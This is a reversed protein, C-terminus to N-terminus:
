SLKYVWTDVIYIRFSIKKLAPFKVARINGL